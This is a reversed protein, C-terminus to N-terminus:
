RTEVPLNEFHFSEIIKYYGEGTPRSLLLKKDAIFRASYHSNSYELWAKEYQWPKLKRAITLHADTMFHPKNDNDLKM